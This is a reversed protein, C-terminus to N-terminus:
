QEKAQMPLTIIFAAGEGPTSEATIQGGHREVIKRCISLGMGSGEYEMRGHLRQFPQFIRDLHIEDFGIGNDKVAIQVCDSGDLPDTQKQCDIQIVPQSKPLQFKIANIILNQFLQRMQVPDASITPLPCLHIDARSQQIHVELDSLVGLVIENLDVESYPRAQTTVHSYELLGQLMTNMRQAANVMRYVYDAAEESLQYLHRSRLRSGFTQIKRLPEKLDHSAIYAFDVLERNAQALKESYQKLADEALRRATVDKGYANIYDTGPVFVFLLAFVRNKVEVEIEKNQGSEYAGRVQELIKPPLLAGAKTGWDELLPGSANNAYLIQGEVSFRMVPNPNEEPFRSVNVIEDEIRKRDTIDHIISFLYEKQAIRIPGSHVEVDRNEGRATRHQFVFIKSGDTEKAQKMRQHIQDQSLTNIDSIKKQILVERPWGYFDCAAPNADVIQSTAMDILLMPTHRNHFLSSYREESERLAIEARRHDTIDLGTAVIYEVRGASDRLVTNSWSILRSQRNKTLWHNEHQNPFQGSLLNETVQSVEGAEHPLLFLDTFKKGRVEEFTYGTARECAKNFRVIRSQTDIVVVLADVTELIASVFSQERGQNEDM